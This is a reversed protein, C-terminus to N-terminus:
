EKYTSNGCFCGVIGLTIWVRIIIYNNDTAPQWRLKAVSCDANFGDGRM